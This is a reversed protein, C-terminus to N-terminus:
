FNLVCVARGPSWLQARLVWMQQSAVLKYSWNWLEACAGRAELVVQVPVCMYCMSVCICM